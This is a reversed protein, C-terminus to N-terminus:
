VVLNLSVFQANGFFSWLSFFGERLRKAKHWYFFFSSFFRFRRAAAVARFRLWCQAKPFEGFFRSGRERVRESEGPSESM